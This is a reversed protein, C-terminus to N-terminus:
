PTVSPKRLRESMSRAFEKQQDTAVPNQEVRRLYDIATTAEGKDAYLNALLILGEYNAPEKELEIEAFRIAEVLNGDAALLRAPKFDPWAGSHEGPENM